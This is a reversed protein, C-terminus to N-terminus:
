GPLNEVVRDIVLALTALFAGFALLNLRGAAVSASALGFAILAAVLLFLALAM